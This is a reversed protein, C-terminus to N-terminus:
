NFHPIYPHSIKRNSVYLDVHHCKNHNALMKCTNSDPHFIENEINVVVLYSMEQEHNAIVKIKREPAVLVARVSIQGHWFPPRQGVTPECDHRQGVPKAPRYQSREKRLLIQFHYTQKVVREDWKLIM